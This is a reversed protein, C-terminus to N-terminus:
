KEVLKITLESAIARHNIAVETVDRCFIPDTHQRCVVHTDSFDSMKRVLEVKTLLIWGM